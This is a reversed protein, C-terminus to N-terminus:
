NFLLLDKPEVASRELDSQRIVFPELTTLKRLMLPHRPQGADTRGLCQLRAAFPLGLVAVDRGM